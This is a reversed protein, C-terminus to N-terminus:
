CAYITCARVLYFEGLSEVVKHYNDPGLEFKESADGEIERYSINYGKIDGNPEMPISWTINVSENSIVRYSLGYVPGPVPFNCRFYVFYKSVDECMYLLVHIYTVYFKSYM